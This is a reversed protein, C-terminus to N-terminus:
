GAVQGSVVADIIAQLSQKYANSTITAGSVGDFATGQAAVARDDLVPVARNNIQVSKSKSDPTVIADAWCITGDAAVSAQVEVPGWKTSITPGNYTTCTPTAPVTTAVTPPTTAPVTEPVTTAVTAPVTAPTTAPTTPSTAATTSAPAAAPSAPMISVVGTSGTDSTTESGADVITSPRDLVSLLFGSASTLAIAPLARRALSPRSRTAPRQPTM